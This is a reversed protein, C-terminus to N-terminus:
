QLKTTVGRSAYSLYGFLLYSVICIHFPFDLKNNFLIMEISMGEFQKLVIEPLILITIISIYLILEIKKFSFYSSGVMRLLLVTEVFLFNCILKIPVEHFFIFDGNIANGGYEEYEYIHLFTYIWSIACSFLAMAKFFFIVNKKSFANEM